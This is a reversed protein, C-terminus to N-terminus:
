AEATPLKSQIDTIADLLESGTKVMSKTDSMRMYDRVMVTFASSRSLHLDKAFEDFFSLYKPSVYLNIRVTDKEKAM